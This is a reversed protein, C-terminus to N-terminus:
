GYMRARRTAAPTADMEQNEEEENLGVMNTIQLEVRCCPGGSETDTKSVSTVKAMCHLHVMDGVDVDDTLGLKALEVESLSISLGCPYAPLDEADEDRWPYAKKAEAPSLRMDIMAPIKRM